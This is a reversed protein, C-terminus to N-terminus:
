GLEFTTIGFVLNFDIKDNNFLKEYVSVDGVVSAPKYKEYYNGYLLGFYSSEDYSISINPRTRFKYTDLINDTKYLFYDLEM